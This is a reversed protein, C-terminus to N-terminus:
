TRWRRRADDIGRRHTTAAGPDGARDAIRAALDHAIELDRWWAGREAGDIARGIAESACRLDVDALASAAEVLAVRHAFNDPCAAAFSRLVALDAEARERLPARADGDLGHVTLAAYQHFMPVHWTSVVGDLYERAAEFCRNADVVSGFHFRAIGTTLHVIAFASRSGAEAVARVEDFGDGDLTNSDLDGAFLRVLREFPRHVDLTNRQDHRKMWITADHATVVLDALDVCAYFANHVYAHAAYGAYEIDGTARGIAVVGLLDDLTSALPVVFTCVLDHIVHRTRAELSRDDFRDVLELAVRGCAHADEFRGISNLVIGFVSLAYPTAPGVGHELSLVVNRCALVPFLNPRAFYAASSIRTGLRMAAAISPDRMSEYALLRRPGDGELVAMAAGVEASIEDGGPSPPISVGLREMAAIGSSVAHEHDCRAILGDIEAEWAVVRDLTTRANTTISAVHEALEDWRALLSACEAAGSHLALALEYDDEFASESLVNAGNRFSEFALGFAAARRARRGAELELRALSPREERPVLHAVARLHRAADFVFASEPADSAFASLWRGLRLHLEDARNRSMTALVTERIRDHHLEISDTGESGTARVLTKQRLSWLARRAGADLGAAVFSAAVPIPSGGIALVEVLAREPESLSAVRHAVVTGLSLADNSPSSDLSSSALQSAVRALELVFFPSGRSELAIAASTADVDVDVGVRDLRARALDAADLPMLPRVVIVDARADSREEIADLFAGFTASADTPEMDVPRRAIAILLHTPSRGELLGVVLDVSDDDAWQFDDITFVITRDVTLRGVLERLALIARRRLERPPSPDARTGTTRDAIAPVRALVPFVTALAPTFDPLEISNAEEPNAVLWGALEDLVGDFAKYPVSEREYCRGEFVTAESARAENALAGLLASKGLGSEGSLELLVAEGARARAIAARLLGREEDRGVLAPPVEFEGSALPDERVGAFAAIVADARPRRIPDPALLAVALEALDAPVDRVLHSAPPPPSLTRAYWIAMPAVIPFARVGTLAVYLILGFAYWDVSDSLAGALFQEPAMWDPTGAIVLTSPSPSRSVAASARGRVLGFDLVVVRGQRDVLVNSPKLDLHLLGAGHIAAVATALQAFADRLRDFSRPASPKIRETTAGLTTRALARLTMESPPTAVEAASEDLPAGRTWEILDVGDIREMTYFWLDEDCSLEYLSVLNPHTLGAASRFETKFRLLGDPDLHTLTKLAVRRGDRDIADYVSGMGGRRILGVVDYRGLRVPHTPSAQALRATLASEIRAVGV